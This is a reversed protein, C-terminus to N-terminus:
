LVEVSHVDKKKGSVTVWRGYVGDGILVEAGKVEQVAGTLPTFFGRLMIRLKAHDDMRHRFWAPGPINDRDYKM